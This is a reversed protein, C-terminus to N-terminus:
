QWHTYEFDIFLTLLFSFFFGLDCLGGAEGSSLEQASEMNISDLEEGANSQMLVDAICVM